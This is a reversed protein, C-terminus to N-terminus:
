RHWKIVSLINSYEDTWVRAGADQRLPKWRRDRALQELDASRRGVVAWISAAV